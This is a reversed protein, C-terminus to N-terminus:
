DILGAWACGLLTADDVFRFQSEVGLGEMAFANLYAEMKPQLAPSLRIMSGDACICVRGGRPLARAIRAGLAEMDQETKLTLEMM